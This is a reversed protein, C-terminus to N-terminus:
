LLHLGILPNQHGDVFVDAVVALRMKFLDDEVFTLFNNARMTGALLVRDLKGDEDGCVAVARGFGLRRGAAAAADAAATPAAAVLSKPTLTRQQGLM